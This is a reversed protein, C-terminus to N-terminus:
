PQVVPEMLLDLRNMPATPPMKTTRATGNSSLSLTSSTTPAIGACKTQPMQPVIITGNLLEPVAKPM